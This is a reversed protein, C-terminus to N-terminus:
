DVGSMNKNNDIVADSKVKTKTRTTHTSTTLLHKTMLVRVEWKHEFKIALNRSCFDMDGKKMTKNMLDKPLDRRNQRVAGVVMTNLAVLSDCPCTFLLVHLQRHLILPWSQPFTADFTSLCVDFPTNSVNPKHAVRLCKM